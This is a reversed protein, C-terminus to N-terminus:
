NLICLFKFVFLRPGVLWKDHHLRTALFLKFKQNDVVESLVGNRRAAEVVYLTTGPTRGTVKNEITYMENLEALTKPEDWAPGRPEHM